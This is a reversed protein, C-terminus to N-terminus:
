AAQGAVAAPNRSSFDDYLWNCDWYWSKGSRCLCRVCLNGNSHLYITGWFFIRKGKWEEPILERHELLYDLANANLVPQNELEKRLYKGVIYKGDEQNPSLYLQVKKLDWEFQGGKKHSEVKLNKPIHPAADLDIIHRDVVIRALGGVVLRLDALQSFSRLNTIDKATYGAAEFADALQNMQGVSFLTSM